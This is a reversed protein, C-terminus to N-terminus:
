EIELSKLVTLKEFVKKGKRSIQLATAHSKEPFTLSTTNELM